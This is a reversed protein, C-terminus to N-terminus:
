YPSLPLKYDRKKGIWVAKGLATLCIFLSKPTLLLFGVRLSDM